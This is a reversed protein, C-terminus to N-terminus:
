LQVEKFTGRKRARRACRSHWPSQDDDYDIASAFGIRGGCGQCTMLPHAINALAFQEKMEDLSTNPEAEEDKGFLRFPM